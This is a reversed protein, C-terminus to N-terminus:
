KKLRAFYFQTLQQSFPMNTSTVSFCDRLEIMRATEHFYIVKNKWGIMIGFVSPNKAENIRTLEVYQRPTPGFKFGSVIKVEAFFMVPCSKPVFICDPIGLGYRDELRRAYGGEKKISMVMGTKVESERM